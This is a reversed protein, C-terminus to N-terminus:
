DELVIGPADDYPAWDACPKTFATAPGIGCDRVPVAPYATATGTVTDSGSPGAGDSATRVAWRSHWPRDDIRIRQTAGSGNKGVPRPAPPPAGGYAREASPTPRPATETSGPKERGAPDSEAAYLFMAQELAVFFRRYPEAEDVTRQVLRPGAQQRFQASLRVVMQSDGRPRVNASLRLVHGDLRTGSVIGTAEDAKDIVFGLDQMAAIVAQITAARDDTDFVRSQISRLAVASHDQTMLTPNPAQAVQCGTAAMGALLAGSFGILRTTRNM